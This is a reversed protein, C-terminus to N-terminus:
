SSASRELRLECMDVSVRTGPTDSPEMAGFAQDGERMDDATEFMQTVIATGQAEDFLLQLGTTPVGPPPGGAEEIRSVLQEIREPTVETFRVVRVYM